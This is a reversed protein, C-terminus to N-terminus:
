FRLGVGLMWWRGPMEAGLIDAYSTDFLNHIRVSAQIPSEPIAVTLRTNWLTYRDELNRGISEAVATSRTKYLGDVSLTIVEYRFLLNATLLDGATNSIYRSVEEDSKDTWLKRYGLQLNFEGKNFIQNFSGHIEWGTTLLSEVNQAYFYNEGPTLNANNPIDDANTLTFDILNEADRLFFTSHFRLSRIPTYDIGLEGTWASEQQLFPNGLNRGPSLSPLGNSVFRETYDGVRIARGSFARLNLEPLVKWVLSLQPSIVKDLGAGDDFRLGGNVAISNTLQYHAIAYFAVQNDEHNGRDNSEVDKYFYQSGFTLKLDGAQYQHFLNLDLHRTRHFNGVFLPNFLFSDKTTQFGARLQTRHSSNFKYDAALQNFQRSVTERSLDFPSSTYFFRANFDRLDYASRLSIGLKETPQYRVAASITRLNFDYPISDNEPTHGDASKIDIGASAAWQDKKWYVGGNTSWLEHRGYEGNWQIQQNEPNQDQEFTHTIINIVGGVAEAGYIASSAGRIVEIRKVESIPIPIYGNFHGTLPDNVRIGDVLLLVQNFTGGRMSIDAQTGFLGRQQVEVGPVYRLVEDLSNAPSNQLQEATIITIDQGTSQRDLQLRTTSVIVTEIDVSDVTQALGNQSFFSLGLLGLLLNHLFTRM